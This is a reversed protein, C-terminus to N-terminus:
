LFATDGLRHTDSLNSFVGYSQKHNIVKASSLHAVQNNLVAWHNDKIYSFMFNGQCSKNQFPLSPHMALVEDWDSLSQLHSKASIYSLNNSNISLKYLVMIEDNESQM